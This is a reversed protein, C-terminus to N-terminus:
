KFSFLGVMGSDIESKWLVFFGDDKSNIMVQFNKKGTRLDHGSNIIM